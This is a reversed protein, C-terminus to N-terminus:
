FTFGRASLTSTKRKNQSAYFCTRGKHLRSVFLLVVKPPRVAWFVVDSAVFSVSSGDLRGTAVDGCSLSQASTQRVVSSLAILMTVIKTRLVM